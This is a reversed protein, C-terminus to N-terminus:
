PMQSGLPSEQFDRWLKQPGAQFDSSSIFQHAVMSISLLQNEISLVGVNKSM